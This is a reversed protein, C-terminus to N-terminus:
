TYINAYERAKLRPIHTGQLSIYIYVYIYIYIYIYTHIYTPIYEDIYIYIYIYIHMSVLKSAHYTLEQFAKLTKHTDMRSEALEDQVCAHMCVYM